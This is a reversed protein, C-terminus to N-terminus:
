KAPTPETFFGAIIRIAALLDRPSLTGITSPPLNTLTSILAGCVRTDFEPDDNEGKTKFPLGCEILDKGTLERFELESIETEGLRVPKKLKLTIAM